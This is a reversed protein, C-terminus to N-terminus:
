FKRLILTFELCYLTFSATSSFIICFIMRIIGPIEYYQIDYLGNMNSRPTFTPNASYIGLPFLVLRFSHRAENEISEDSRFHIDVFCSFDLFVGFYVMHILKPTECYTIAFCFPPVWYWNWFFSNCLNFVIFYPIIARPPVQYFVDM